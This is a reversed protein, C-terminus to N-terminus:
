WKFLVKKLIEPPERFPERLRYFNYIGFGIVVLILLLLLVLTVIAIIYASQAKQSTKKLEDDVENEM